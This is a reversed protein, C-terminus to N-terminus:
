TVEPQSGQSQKPDLTKIVQFSLSFFYHVRSVHSTKGLIVFRCYAM